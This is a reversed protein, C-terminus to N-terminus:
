KQSNTNADAILLKSNLTKGRRNEYVAITINIVLIGLLLILDLNNVSSSTASRWQKEIGIATGLFLAMVLRATFDGWTIM